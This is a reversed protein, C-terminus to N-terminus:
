NESPQASRGEILSPLNLRDLESSINRLWTRVYGRLVFSSNANSGDAKRNNAFTSFPVGTLEVQEYAM